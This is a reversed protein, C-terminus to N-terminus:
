CRRRWLSALSPTAVNVPTQDATINVPVALTFLGASDLGPHSVLLTYRGPIISDLRFRGESGTQAHRESGRVWVDAGRLPAHVLSDYVTGVVARQGVVAQPVLLLLLFSWRMLNM